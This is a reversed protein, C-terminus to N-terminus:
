EEFEVPEITPSCVAKLLEELVGIYQDREDIKDCLIGSVCEWGDIEAFHTEAQIRVHILSVVFAAAFVVSTVIWFGKSM